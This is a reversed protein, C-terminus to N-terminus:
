SNPCVATAGADVSRMVGPTSAYDWYSIRVGTINTSNIAAQNLASAACKLFRVTNPNTPAATIDAFSGTFNVTGAPLNYSTTAAAGTLDTTLLPYRGLEANYAEVKKDVTNAASLASAGDARNRVGNFAVVTIAALIGIVVIVILLEVITFGKQTSKQHVQM